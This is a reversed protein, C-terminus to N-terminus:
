PWDCAAAIRHEAIRGPLGDLMWIRDAVRAALTGDRTGLLMALGRRRTAALLVRQLAPHEAPDVQEFPEDLVLLRPQAFLARAIAVRQAQGPTLQRPLASALTALGLEDLVAATRARVQPQGRLSRGLDFAVNEAVSLWPLLRPAAFVLGMTRRLGAVPAGDFLVKGRFERDLGTILRLLSSKGSGAAGVLGVVEGAALSGQVGDLVVCAGFAKRQIQFSLLPEGM